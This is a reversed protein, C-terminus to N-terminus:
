RKCYEETSLFTLMHPQYLVLSQYMMSSSSVIELVIKEADFYQIVVSSSATLSYINSLNKQLKWNKKILWDIEYYSFSCVKYLRLKLTLCAHLWSSPVPPVSLDQPHLKWCSPYTGLCLIQVLCYLRNNLWQM